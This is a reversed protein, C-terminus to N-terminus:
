ENNDGDSIEDNCAECDCPEDNRGSNVRCGDKVRQDWYKGIYTDFSRERVYQVRLPYGPEGIIEASPYTMYGSRKVISVWKEQTYQYSISSVSISVVNTNFYTYLEQLYLEPNLTNIQVVTGNTTENYFKLDPNLVVFQIKNDKTKDIIHVTDGKIHKLPLNGLTTYKRDYDEIDKYGQKTIVTVLWSGSKDITNNHFLKVDDNLYQSIMFILDKPIQSQLSENIINHRLTNFEQTYETEM